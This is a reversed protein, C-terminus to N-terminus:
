IDVPYHIVNRGTPRRGSRQNEPVHAPVPYGVAFGQGVDIEDDLLLDLGGGLAVAGDGLGFAAEHEGLKFEKKQIRVGQSDQIRGRVESDWDRNKRGAVRWRLNRQTSNAM